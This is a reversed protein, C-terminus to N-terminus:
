MVKSSSPPDYKRSCCSDLQEMFSDPLTIYIRIQEAQKCTEVLHGEFLDKLLSHLSGQIQSCGFDVKGCM